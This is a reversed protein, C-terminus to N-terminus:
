IGDYLIGLYDQIRKDTLVPSQWTKSTYDGKEDRRIGTNAIHQIDADSLGDRKMQSQLRKWNDGIRTYASAKIQADDGGLQTWRNVQWDSKTIAGVAEALAAKPFAQALGFDVFRAKGRDDILINGPHMDNHAVGMMHLDRRARWFADGVNVGNVTSTHTREFADRGPVIGMAVLGTRTNQAGDAYDKGTKAAILRPGLDAEGVKKLIAPENVGIRGGKVGVGNPLDGKVGFKFLEDQPIKVFAGYAGPKGLRQAGAGVAAEWNLNGAFETGKINLLSGEKALGEFVDKLRTRAEKGYYTLQATAGKPKSASNVKRLAALERAKDRANDEFMRMNKYHSDRLAMLSKYRPSGQPVDSLKKDLAAIILSNIKAQRQASRIARRQAAYQPEKADEANRAKRAAETGEAKIVLRQARFQIAFYEKVEPKLKGERHLRRVERQAKMLAKKADAVSERDYMKVSAEQLDRMLTLGPVKNTLTRGFQGVSLAKIQSVVKPIELSTSLPIDVLCVKSSAICTASCSKGKKCRKKAGGVARKKARHIQTLTRGQVTGREPNYSIPQSPM